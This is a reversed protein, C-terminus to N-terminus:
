TTQIGIQNLTKWFHPFTKQVVSPNEIKIKGLKQALIAFSMAMRHDNYTPIINPYALNQPVKLIFSSNKKIFTSGTQECVEQLAKLRDTEKYPLTHIGSFSYEGPFLLALATFTQVLDPFLTFDLSFSQLPFSKDNQITIGIENQEIRLLKEQFFPLIQVEPQLSSLALYPFHLHSKTTIAWAFFYIASSWDAEISYESPFQPQNQILIWHHPKVQKWRVRFQQLLSLTMHIFSLSPQDHPLIIETGIPLIPSLLLFATIPQSSYTQSFVIKHVQKFHNPQGHIILPFSNSNYEFPIQYHQLLNLTSNIPRQHLRPHGYLYFTAPLTAVLLPFIRWALGSMGLNVHFTKGEIAKLNCPHIRFTPPSFSPTIMNLQTLLELTIQIDEGIFSSPFQLTIPEKLGHILFSLFRIAHSKSPPLSVTGQIKKASYVTIYNM